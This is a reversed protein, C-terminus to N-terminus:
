PRQFAKHPVPPDLRPLQFRSPLSLAAGCFSLLDDRTTTTRQTTAWARVCLVCAVMPLQLSARTRANQVPSSFTTLRSREFLVGDRPRDTTKRETQRKKRETQTDTGASEHAQEQKSTPSPGCWLKALHHENHMEHRPGLADDVVELPRVGDGRELLLHRHTCVPIPASAHLCVDNKAV